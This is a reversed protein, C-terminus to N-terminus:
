WELHMEVNISAKADPCYENVNGCKVDVNVM